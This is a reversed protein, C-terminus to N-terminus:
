LYKGHGSRRGTTIESLSSISILSLRGSSGSSFSFLYASFNFKSRDSAFIIAEDFVIALMNSSAQAFVLSEFSTALQSTPSILARSLLSFISISSDFKVESFKAVNISLIDSLVMEPFIALDTRSSIHSVPLSTSSMM